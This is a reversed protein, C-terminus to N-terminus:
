NIHMAPSHGTWAGIEDWEQADIGAAAIAYDPPNERLIEELLTQIRPNLHFDTGYLLAHLAFAILDKKDGLGYQRKAVEIARESCEIANEYEIRSSWPRRTQVTYRSLANNIYIVHELRAHQEPHAVWFRPIGRTVEPPFETIWENQFRWTWRKVSGFLTRMQEPWLIRKLHAFVLPDYYRLFACGRSNHLLLKEQLHCELKEPPTESVIVNLLCSLVHLSPDKEALELNECLLETYPANDPKLPLLAPMKDAKSRLIEPVLPRLPLESVWEPLWASRDVIAYHHRSLLEQYNTM